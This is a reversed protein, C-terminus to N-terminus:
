LKDQAPAPVLVVVGGKEKEATLYEHGQIKEELYLINIKERM